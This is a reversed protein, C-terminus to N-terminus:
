LTKRMHVIRKDGRQERHTEEFGQRGYWDRNSTMLINTYLRIEPLGADRTRRISWGLLKRGFGRGQSQPDVAISEILLHDDLHVLVLSAAIRGETRIVWVDHDRILAGYDATMPLPVANLVPIYHAYARRALDTLKGADDPGAPELKEADSASDM